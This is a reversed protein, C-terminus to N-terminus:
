LFSFGLYLQVTRQKWSSSISSTGMDSLGIVYRGGVRLKSVNLQLGLVGSFDGSKFLQKTDKLLNDNDSVGIIGSYQPGIQFNVPGILRFNLLVPINIYSVAFEGKKTSDIAKNFFASQAKYFNVGSGTYKVKSFLAEVQVGVRRFRVGGFIGGTFGGKYSSEWEDGSIKAFNAGAKLGLDIKVPLVNKVLPQAALLFPLCFVAIFLLIQKM